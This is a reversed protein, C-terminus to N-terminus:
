IITLNIINVLFVGTERDSLGFPYWVYWISILMVYRKKIFQWQMDDDSLTRIGEVITVDTAPYEGDTAIDEQYLLRIESNIRQEEILLDKM